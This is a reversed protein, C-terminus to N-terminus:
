QRSKPASPPTCEIEGRLITLLEEVPPVGAQRHLLVGDEGILVLTPKALGDPGLARYAAAVRRDADILVPFPYDLTAFFADAGLAGDPIIGYPEVGLARVDAIRGRV